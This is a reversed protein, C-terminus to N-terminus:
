QVNKERFRHCGNILKSDTYNEIKWLAMNIFYTTKECQSRENLM